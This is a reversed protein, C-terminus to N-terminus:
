LFLHRSRVLLLHIAGIFAEWRCESVDVLLAWVTVGGIWLLCEGFVAGFKDHSWLRSYWQLAIFDDRLINVSPAGVILALKDLGHHLSFITPSSDLLM